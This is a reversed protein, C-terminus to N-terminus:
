LTGGKGTWNIRYSKAYKFKRLATNTEHTIDNWIGPNWQELLGWNLNPNGGPSRKVDNQWGDVSWGKKVTAMLYPENPDGGGGGTPPPPNTAPSTNISPPYGTPGAIPPKNAIAIAQQILSTEDTNVPQGSLYKGLAASIPGTSAVIDNDSMYTIVYQSWEANTLFQTGSSGTNGGGGGGSPFQYQNQASLAAADEASGFPYGTAPNIEAAGALSPDTNNRNRYWVVGALAAVFVVAIAVSKKPFTGLPTKVAGELLDAM